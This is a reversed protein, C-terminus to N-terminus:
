STAVEIWEGGKCMCSTNPIWSGKYKGNKCQCPKLIDDDGEMDSVGGGSDVGGFLLSQEDRSLTFSPKEIVVIENNKIQEKQM